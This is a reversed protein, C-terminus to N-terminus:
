YLNLKIESLKARRSYIKHITQGDFFFVHTVPCDQSILLAEEINNEIFHSVGNSLIFNVKETIIKKFKTKYSIFSTPDDKNISSIGSVAQAISENNAFNHFVKLWENNILKGTTNEIDAKCKDSSFGVFIEQELSAKINGAELRQLHSQPTFSIWEWPPQIYDKKLEGCIDPKKPAKEDVLTVYSIVNINKYNSKLFNVLENLTKGTGCISDVLLLNVTKLSNELDLPWFLRFDEQARGRPAEIVGLPIGFYNALISGTLVGNRLKSIVIDFVLNNQKQYDEIKSIHNWVLNSFDQYDLQFVKTPLM